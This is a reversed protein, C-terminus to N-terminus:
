KHATNVSRVVAFGKDQSLHMGLFMCSRDIRKRKIFWCVAPYNCNLSNLINSLSIHM